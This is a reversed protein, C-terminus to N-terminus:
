YTTFSERTDYGAYCVESCARPAVPFGYADEYGYVNSCEWNDPDLCEEAKELDFEPCEYDTFSYGDPDDCIESIYSAGCDLSCYVEFLQPYFTEASLKSPLVGPCDFVDYCPPPIRDGDDCEHRADRLEALCQRASEPDFACDISDDVGALLEDVCAEVDDYLEVFASKHCREDFRCLQTAYDEAFGSETVCATLLLLLTM